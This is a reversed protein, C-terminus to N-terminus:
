PATTTRRRLSAGVKALTPCLWAANTEVSLHGHANTCSRSSPLADAAGTRHLPVVLLALPTVLSNIFAGIPFFAYAAWPSPNRSRHRARRARPSVALPQAAPPADLLLLRAVAADGAPQAGAVFYGYQSPRFYIVM